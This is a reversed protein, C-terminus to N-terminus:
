KEFLEEVMEVKYEEGKSSLYDRAEEFSLDYQEFKQNQKIIQKM